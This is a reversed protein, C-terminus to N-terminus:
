IMDDGMATSLQQLKDCLEEQRFQGAMGAPEMAFERLSMNPSSMASSAARSIEGGRPNWMSPHEVVMSSIPSQSVSMSGFPSTAFRDGALEMMSPFQQSAMSSTFSPARTSAASMPLVPLLPKQVPSLSRALSHFVEPAAEEMELMEDTKKTTQSKMKAKYTKYLVASAGLVTVSLLSWFLFAVWGMRGHDVVQEEVKKEEGTTKKESEKKANRNFTPAFPHIAHDPKWYLLREGLFMFGSEADFVVEPLEEEEEKGEWRSDHAIEGFLFEPVRIIWRRISEHLPIDHEEFYHHANNEQMLKKTDSVFGHRNWTETLAQEVDDTGETEPEAVVFCSSVSKWSFYMEGHRWPDPTASLFYWSGKITTKTKTETTTTKTETTAQKEKQETGEEKSHHQELEEKEKKITEEGAVPPGLWSSCRGKHSGKADPTHILRESGIYISYYYLQLKAPSAQPSGEAEHHKTKSFEILQKRGDKDVVPMTRSPHKWVYNIASDLTIALDETKLRRKADDTLTFKKSAATRCTYASWETTSEDEEPVPERHFNRPRTGQYWFMDIDSDDVYYAGAAASQINFM